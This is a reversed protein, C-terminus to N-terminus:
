PQSQGEPTGQARGILVSVSLNPTGEAGPAGARCATTSCGSTHRQHSLVKLEPPELAGWELCPDKAEVSQSTCLWFHIKIRKM